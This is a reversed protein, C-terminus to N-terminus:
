DLTHGEGKGMYCCRSLNYKMSDIRYHVTLMEALDDIVNRASM